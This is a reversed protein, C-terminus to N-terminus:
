SNSTGLESVVATIGKRTEVSLRTAELKWNVVFWCIVQQSNGCDVNIDRSFISSFPFASLLPFNKRRRESVISMNVHWGSTIARLMLKAWRLQRVKWYSEVMIDVRLHYWEWTYWLSKRHYILSRWEERQSRWQDEICEGTGASVGNYWMTIQFFCNRSGAVHHNYTQSSESMQICM